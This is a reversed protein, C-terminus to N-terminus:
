LHRAAVKVASDTIGSARGLVASSASAAAAADFRRYFGSLIMPDTSQRAESAQQIVESLLRRVIAGSIVSVRQVTHRGSLRVSRIQHAYAIPYNCQVARPFYVVDARLPGSICRAPDLGLLQLLRHRLKRGGAVYREKKAFQEFARIHIRVDPNVRLFGLIRAIRSLCDVLFHHYNNDWNAAIVVVRGVRPVVAVPPNTFCLSANFGIEGTTEEALENDFMSSWTAKSTKLLASCQTWWKRGIFKFITECAETAQYYGCELGVIGTDHVLAHRAQVIYYDVNRRLGSYLDVPAVGAQQSVRVCNSKNNRPHDPALQWSNATNSAWTSAVSKGKVIGLGLKTNASTLTLPLRNYADLENENPRVAHVQFMSDSHTQDLQLPEVVNYACSGFLNFGLSERINNSSCYNVTMCVFLLILHSYMHLLSM